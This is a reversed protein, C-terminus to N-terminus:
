GPALLIYLRRCAYKNFSHKLFREKGIFKYKVSLAILSYKLTIKKPAYLGHIYGHYQQGTFSYLFGDAQLSWKKRLLYNMSLGIDPYFSIETSTFSESKLGEMTENNLLWTNKVSATLGISIRGNDTLPLSSTASQSINSTRLSNYDTEFLLKNIKLDNPIPETPIHSKEALIENPNVTLNSDALESVEPFIFDVDSSVSLPTVYTLSTNKDAATSPKIFDKNKSFSSILESPM